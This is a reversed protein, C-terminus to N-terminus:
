KQLVSVKFNLQQEDMTKLCTVPLFIGCTLKNADTRWFLKIKMKFAKVDGSTDSILKKQSQLKMNLDRLKHSIGCLPALDWLWKEDSFQAV